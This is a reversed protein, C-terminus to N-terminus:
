TASSVAFAVRAPPSPRLQWEYSRSASQRVPSAPRLSVGHRAHFGREQVGSGDMVRSGGQM